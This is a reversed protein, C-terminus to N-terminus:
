ASCNNTHKERLQPINLEFVVKVILYNREATLLQSLYRCIEDTTEQIRKKEDDNNAKIESLQLLYYESIYIERELKKKHKNYETSYIHYKKHNNIIQLLDDLKM